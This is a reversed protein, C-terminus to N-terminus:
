KIKLHPLAIAELSNSLTPYFWLCVFHDFLNMGVSVCLVYMQRLRGNLACIVTFLTLFSTINYGFLNKLTQYSSSSTGSDSFHFPVATTELM